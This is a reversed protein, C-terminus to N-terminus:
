AGTTTAHEASPVGRHATSLPDLTRWAEFEPYGYQHMRDRWISLVVRETSEEATHLWARHEQWTRPTGVRNLWRRANHPEGNGLLYAVTQLTHGKHLMGSALAFRMVQHIQKPSPLGARVFRAQLTTVPVGPGQYQRHVVPRDTITLLHMLYDRMGDRMTRSDILVQLRLIRKLAIFDERAPTM